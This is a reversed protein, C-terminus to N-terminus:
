IATVEIEAVNKLAKKIDESNNFYGDENSTAGFFAKSGDKALITVKYGKRIVMNIDKSVGKEEKTIFLLGVPLLYHQDEESPIDTKYNGLQLIMETPDGVKCVGSPSVLATNTMFKVLIDENIKPTFTVKPLVPKCSVDPKSKDDKDRNVTPQDNSDKSAAPPSNQNNNGPLGLTSQSASPSSSTTNNNQMGTSQLATPTSPPKPASVPANSDVAPATPNSPTSVAPPANDVVPPSVVQAKVASGPENTKPMENTKDATDKAASDDTIEFHEIERVMELITLVTVAVILSFEITYNSNYTLYTILAIKFAANHLVKKVLPPMQPKYVTNIILITIFGFLLVKNSILSEM